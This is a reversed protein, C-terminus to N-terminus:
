TREFFLVDEWQSPARRGQLIHNINFFSIEGVPREDWKDWYAVDMPMPELTVTKTLKDKVRRMRPAPPRPIVVGRERLQAVTQWLYAHRTAVHRFGADQMLQITLLDLRKLQQKKVPNKTVLVAYKAGCRYLARYVDRTMSAYTEGKKNGIQGETAESYGGEKGIRSAAHRAHLKPDALPGSEIPPHGGSQAEFPPSGVAAVNYNATLSRDNARKPDRFLGGRKAPDDGSLSDEYPPSGVAALVQDTDDRALGIQGETKGYHRLDRGTGDVDAFNERAHKGEKWGDGLSGGYHRVEVGPYVPSSLAVRSELAAYDGDIPALDINGPSAKYGQTMAKFWDGEPDRGYLSSKPDEVLRRLREPDNAGIVGKGYPPSSLVLRDSQIGVNWYLDMARSDGNLALWKLPRGLVTEAQIRNDISMTHFPEELECTVAWNAPDLKCWEVASAGRGGFPDLFGDGFRVWGADLLETIIRRALPLSMKAPHQTSAPTYLPDKSRNKPYLDFWNGEAQM